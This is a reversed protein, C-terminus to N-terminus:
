YITRIVSDYETNNRYELQISIFTNLYPVQSATPIFFMFHIAKSSSVEESIGDGGFSISNIAHTNFQKPSGAVNTGHTVKFRM